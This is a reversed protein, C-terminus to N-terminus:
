EVLNYKIIKGPNGVVIANNPVDQLIVAGAGIIAWDGVSVGQLITSGAGIMSGMGIKVGGLLTANPAVHVFSGIKCDHDVCCSTNIICHKGIITSPNIIAGAMVVTGNKVIVNEGIIANPHIASAYKYDNSDYVRRRLYNNGIAIIVKDQDFFKIPRCVEYGTVKANSDDDWFSINNIGNNKLIDVIVKGHGSAGYIIM